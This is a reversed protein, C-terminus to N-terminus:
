IRLLLLRSKFKCVSGGSRSTTERWKASVLAGSLACAVAQPFTEFCVRTGSPVISGDFLPYDEELLRFLEAGNLMWGFHNKPHAAASQQTPTSFCWIGGAMLEREAPRARGTRSWRCPADVGVAYARTERCWDAIDSANRSSFQAHYCGDRLAVAHFGKKPGGVDIGVVILALHIMRLSLGSDHTPQGGIGHACCRFAFRSLDLRVRLDRSGSTESGSTERLDGSCRTLSSCNIIPLGRSRDDSVSRFPEPQSPGLVRPHHSM